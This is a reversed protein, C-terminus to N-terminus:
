HYTIVKLNFMHNKLHGSRSDPDVIRSDYFRNDIFDYRLNFNIGSTLPLVVPSLWKHWRYNVGISFAWFNEWRELDRRFLGRYDKRIKGGWVFLHTKKWFRRGIKGSFEHHEEITSIFNGANYNHFYNLSAESFTALKSLLEFTIDNARFSDNKYPDNKFDIKFRNFDIKLENNANLKHEFYLGFKQYSNDVDEYNRWAYEGNFNVNSRQSILHSLKGLIRNNNSDSLPSSGETMKFEMKEKITELQITARYGLRYNIGPNLTLTQYKNISLESEGPIVTAEETARSAVEQNTLTLLLTLNKTLNYREKLSLNHTVSNDDPKEKSFFWVGDYSFIAPSKLSKYNMSIGPNAWTLLDGKYTGESGMHARNNYKETLTFTPLADLRDVRKSWLERKDIISTVVLFIIVGVAIKEKSYM